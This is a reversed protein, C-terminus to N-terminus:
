IIRRNMIKLYTARLQLYDLMLFWRIYKYKSHQGEFFTQLFQERWMTGARKNWDHDNWCHTKMSSETRTLKGCNYYQCQFGTKVVLGSVSSKIENNEWLQQVENPQWLELSKGYNIIEQRVSLPITKHMQRFHRMIWDQPIAHGCQRCILIHYISNYIVYQEM